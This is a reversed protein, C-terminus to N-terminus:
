RTLKLDYAGPEPGEVVEVKLPTTKAQGYVAPVLSQPLPRHKLSAKARGALPPDATASVVVRYWGPPAGRRGKTSLTYQGDADVTGVPEFRTKNGRAADPKFVIVTTTATLPESNLTVKGRVPYTTGVGSDDGCGVALLVLAALPLLPRRAPRLRHPTM